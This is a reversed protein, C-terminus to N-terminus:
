KGEDIMLRKFLYIGLPVSGALAGWMGSKVKLMAISVQIQILKEDMIKVKENIRNIESLVLKQYENWGNKM